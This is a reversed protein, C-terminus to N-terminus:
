LHKSYYPLEIRDVNFFSVTGGNIVAFLFPVADPFKKDLKYLDRPSPLSSTFKQILVRYDPKLSNLKKYNEALFVDYVVELNDEDLSTDIKNEPPEMRLRNYIERLSGGMEPCILPAVNEENTWLSALPGYKFNKLESHAQIDDSYYSSSSPSRDDEEDSTLDVVINEQEENKVVNDNKLSNKNKWQEAAETLKRIAEDKVNDEEKSAKEAQKSQKHAIWETARAALAVLDINNDNEKRNENAIKSTPKKPKPLINTSKPANINDRPPKSHYGFNRVSIYEGSVSALPKTFEKAPFLGRFPRTLPTIVERRPKCEDEVMIVEDDDDDDDDIIDIEEITNIPKPIKAPKSRPITENNMLNSLEMERSSRGDFNWTNKPILNILPKTLQISQKAACNPIEAIIEDKSKKDGTIIEIDNDDDECGSPAISIKDTVIMIDDDDTPTVSPPKQLRSSIGGPANMQARSTMVKLHSKGKFHAILAANGSCEIGCIDCSFKQSVSGHSNLRTLKKLHKQGAEHKKLMEPTNCTVDCIKCVFANASDVLKTPLSNDLKAQLAEVSSVQHNIAAAVLANINQQTHIFQQNQIANPMKNQNGRIDDNVQTSSGAEDLVEVSSEEEDEDDLDVSEHFPNMYLDKSNNINSQEENNDQNNELDEHQPEVDDTPEDQIPSSQELTVVEPDYKEWLDYKSINLFQSIKTRLQEDTVTHVVKYHGVRGCL